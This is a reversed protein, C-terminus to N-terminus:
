LEEVRLVALDQIVPYGAFDQIDPHELVQLRSDLIGASDQIVATAV